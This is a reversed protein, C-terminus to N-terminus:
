KTILTPNDILNLNLTYTRIKETEGETMGLLQLQTASVKIIEGANVGVQLDFPILVTGKHSELSTFFNKDQIKPALITISGSPQRDSVKTSRYNAMDLRPVQNGWNLEFSQVAVAYGDLNFTPINDKIASLPDKFTSWDIGGPPSGQIPKNYTGKFQDFSFLPFGEKEMKFSLNGRCGTAKQLLDAEPDYDWLTLSDQSTDDAAYVVEMNTVADVTESLGCGRLLPGYAPPTTAAGSGAAEIQFAYEAYPATNVQEQNGTVNRDLERTKKPGEYRKVSLGITNIANAAAPAADTDETAEVKALLLRPQM